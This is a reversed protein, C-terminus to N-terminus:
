SPTKGHKTTNNSNKSGREVKEKILDEFESSMEDIRGEKKLLVIM